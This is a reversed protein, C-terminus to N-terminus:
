QRGYVALLILGSFKTNFEFLIGLQNNEKNEDYKTSSVFQEEVGEDVDLIDLITKYEDGFLFLGDLGDAIKRKLQARDIDRSRNARCGLGRWQKIRQLEGAKM